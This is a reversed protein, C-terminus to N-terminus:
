PMTKLGLMAERWRPEFTSLPMGVLAEFREVPSAGALEPNLYAEFNATGLVGQEFALYYALGWSYYYHRSVSQGDDAHGALFSDSGAALLEALSLPQEGALDSQLRSLAVANPNDIRLTDAELLGAEFTQALGENLWRPVDYAMRPYVFTELYAHFAEHALRRFMQGAVVDFKAANNRELVAIKRRVERRDDEWKKQEAVLIKQRDAAPIQNKQLTERLQKIRAPADAVLADLQARIKQHQRDVDALAAEFPNLNSGALILNQDQLYVAPNKIALALGALAQQYQDNAGFIQIRLRAPTKWRPPLVHRYATFIQELRVISRRTMSEGATSELAFWEGEYNWVVRDDNRKPVLALDEMRAAEILTRERHQQLRTRLTAQEQASLRELREITARAVPRVVLFMPKGRPRHVEVFEISQPGESKVLGAYQKGDKLIVRELAWDPGTVTAPESAAPLPQPATSPAAVLASTGWGLWASVAMWRLAYRSLITM